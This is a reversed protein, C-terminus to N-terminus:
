RQEREAIQYLRDELWDAVAKNDRREEPIEDWFRDFHENFRRVVSPRSFLLTTRTGRENQGDHREFITVLVHHDAKVRYILRPETGALGLKFHGRTRLLEIMAILHPVVVESPLVLDRSREGTQIYRELREIPIITRSEHEMLAVDLASRRSKAWWKLLIPNPPEVGFNARYLYLRDMPVEVPSFPLRDTFVSRSGPMEEFEVSARYYDAPSLGHLNIGALILPVSPEVGDREIADEIAQVQSRRQYPSPLRASLAGILADCASSELSLFEGRNERPIGLDELLGDLQVRQQFTECARAWLHEPTTGLAHALSAVHSDDPRIQGREFQGVRSTSIGSAQALWAQSRGKSQRVARLAAGFSAGHESYQSCSMLRSM